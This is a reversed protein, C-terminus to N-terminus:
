AADKSDAQADLSTKVSRLIAIPEVLPRMKHFQRIREIVAETFELGAPVVMAGSRTTVDNVTQDGPLLESAQVDRRVQKMETNGSPELFCARAMKLLKPDFIEPTEDLKSFADEDPWAADNAELLHHLLFLIRANLPIDDGKTECDPFGTGNYGRDRYYVSDAVDKLRPINLLLKRAVEPSRKVLDKEVDNLPQDSTMKARLEPPLMVQGITSLMIAMDLTWAKKHNLFKGLQQGARRMNALQKFSEPDNASLIDVLVKVSGALTGELLKKEALAADYVVLAAEITEAIVEIACPKNLYKFVGSDNVAAAATERDANGTLMIRMTLPDHAMVQKLFETGNMGPMQQDSIVVAFPGDKEITSLAEQAGVAIHFDFTRRLRRQFASLIRTDDDVFLIKRSM